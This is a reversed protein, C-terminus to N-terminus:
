KASSLVPIAKTVIEWFPLSPSNPCKIFRSIYQDYKKEDISFPDSLSVTEPEDIFQLPTGLENAYAHYFHKEYIQRHYLPMTVLLMVPKRYMVAFSIATSNHGLVLKSKSILHATEGYRVDRNGFGKQHEYCDTRPHAAIVVKLGLELEIRDFFARMTSYYLDADMPQSHDINMFDRHYPMYQDIFVAQNLVRSVRDKERLFIEYDLCHNEIYITGDGVLKNFFGARSSQLVVYDASRIGLWNSSLRSIISDCINISSIRLLLDKVKQFAEVGISDLQIGPHKSPSFIVYPIKLKSLFRLPRYTARSLGYSQILFFALEAESIISKYLELQNWQLIEFIKLKDEIEVFEQSPTEPHLIRTLDIVFIKHGRNLFFDIGFRNRDRSTLPQKIFYVISCLEQSQDKLLSKIKESGM